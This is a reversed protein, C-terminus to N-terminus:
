KVDITSVAAVIAPCPFGHTLAYVTRLFPGSSYKTCSERCKFQEKAQEMQGDACDSEAINKVVCLWTDCPHVLIKQLRVFHM